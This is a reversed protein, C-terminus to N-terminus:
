KNWELAPRLSGEMSRILCFDGSNEGWSEVPEAGFIGTERATFQM